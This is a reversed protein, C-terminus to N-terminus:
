KPKKHCNFMHVCTIYWKSPDLSSKHTFSFHKHQSNHMPLKYCGSYCLCSGVTCKITFSGYPLDHDM